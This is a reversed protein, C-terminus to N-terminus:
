VELWTQVINLSKEFLRGIYIHKPTNINSCILMNPHKVYSWYVDELM